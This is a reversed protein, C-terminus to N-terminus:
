KVEQQTLNALSENQILTYGMELCIRYKNLKTDTRGINLILTIALKM